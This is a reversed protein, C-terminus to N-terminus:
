LPIIGKYTQKYTTAAQDECSNLVSKMIFYDVIEKLKSILVDNFIIVNWNKMCHGDTYRM